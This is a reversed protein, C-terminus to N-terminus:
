EVFARVAEVCRPCLPGSGPPWSEESTRVVPAGCTAIGSGAAVAHLEGAAEAHSQSPAEVDLAPGTEDDAFGVLLRM